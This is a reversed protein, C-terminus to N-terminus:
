KLWLAYTPIADLGLDDSSFYMNLNTTIALNVHEIAKKRKRVVVETWAPLCQRGRLVQALRHLRVNEIRIGRYLTVPASSRCLPEVKSPVRHRYPRTVLEQTM